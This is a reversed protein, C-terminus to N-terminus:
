RRSELLELTAAEISGRPAASLADLSFLLSEFPQNSSAGASPRASDTNRFVTWGMYTGASLGIILAATTAGRLAWTWAPQPVKRFRIVEPSTKGTQQRAWAATLIRSALDSPPAPTELTRLVPGLLRLGQLVTSCTVCKRLHAEVAESERQNLEGDLFAGLWSRYRLCALM